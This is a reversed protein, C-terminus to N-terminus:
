FRAAGFKFFRTKTRELKRRPSQPLGQSPDRQQLVWLTSRHGALSLGPRAPALVRPRRPAEQEGGPGQDQGKLPDGGARQTPGRRRNLAQARRQPCTAKFHGKGKCHYCTKGSPDQHAGSLALILGEGEEWYDREEQPEEQWIQQDIPHQFFPLDESIESLDM